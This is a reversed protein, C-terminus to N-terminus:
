NIIKNFEAEIMKSKICNLYRKTICLNEIDGVIEPEINNKFGYFVSIKHDITPYFRHTHSYSFCSRINEGDYYDLGNWNEFLSKKNSNTIKRIKRKYVDWESLLEEPIIQNTEIKTKIIKDYIQKIQSVNEVGYKEICNEKSKKEIELINSLYKSKWEATQVYHNVGYKEIFTYFDQSSANNEGCSCGSILTSIPPLVGLSGDPTLTTIGTVPDWGWFQEWFETDEATTGDAIIPPNSPGIGFFGLDGASNYGGYDTNFAGNTLNNLYQCPIPNTEAADAVCEACGEFFETVTDPWMSVGCLGSLADTAM